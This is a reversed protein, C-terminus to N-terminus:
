LRTLQALQDYVVHQLAYKEDGDYSDDDDDDSEHEWERRTEDGLGMIALHLTEIKHCVLPVSNRFENPGIKLGVGELARLDSCPTLLEVVSSNEGNWLTYVSGVNVRRLAPCCQALAALLPPTSVLLSLEVLHPVTRWLFGLSESQATRQVTSRAIRLVKVNPLSILPEIVDDMTGDQNQQQAGDGWPGSYFDIQVSRVKACHAVFTNLYKFQKLNVVKISELTPFHITLLDPFSVAWDLSSVELQRLHIGELHIPRM